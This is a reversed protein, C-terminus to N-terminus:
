ASFRGQAIAVAARRQRELGYLMWTRAPSVRSARLPTLAYAKIYNRICNTSIFIIHSRCLNAKQMTRPRIQSTLSTVEMGSTTQAAALSLATIGEGSFHNLTIGSARVSYGADLAAMRGLDGGQKWRRM